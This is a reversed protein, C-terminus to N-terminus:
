RLLTVCFEDESCKKFRVDSVVELEEIIEGLDNSNNVITFCINLVEPSEVFFCINFQRELEKLIQSLPMSRFVLNRNKWGLYVEKNKIENGVICKKDKRSYNLGQGPILTYAQESDDLIVGGEDLYVQVCSDGPYARANFKTGTVKISVGHLDVLFVKNPDKEVEFYAEGWLEVERSFLGFKKPYRLRSDSNLFVSTGDSLIVKMREGKPVEVYAYEIGDLFGLRNNLFFLASGLLLMPLMISAVIAINRWRTFRSQIERMFRKKMREVPIPHDLGITAVDDLHLLDEDLMDALLKNGDETSLWKRVQDSEEKSTKGSFYKRVLEAKIEM